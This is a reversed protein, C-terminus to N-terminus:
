PRGRRGFGRNGQGRFVNDTRFGRDSESIRNNRMFERNEFNRNRLRLERRRFRDNDFSRFRRSRSRTVFIRNRFGVRNARPGRGDLRGDRADHCNVFVRCKWSMDRRNLRGRGQASAVAPLAALLFASVMVLVINRNRKILQM